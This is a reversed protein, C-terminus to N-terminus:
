SLSAIRWDTGAGSQGQYGGRKVFKQVALFITTTGTAVTVSTTGNVTQSASPFPYVTITNPSDNILAVMGGMNNNTILDPLVMAASSAISKTVRVCQSLFPLGTNASTQGTAVYQNDIIFFGNTGLWEYIADNAASTGVYTTM